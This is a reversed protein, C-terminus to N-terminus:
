LAWIEKCTKYGQRGPHSMILEFLAIESERRPLQERAQEVAQRHDRSAGFVLERTSFCPSQSLVYLAEWRAPRARARNGLARNLAERAEDFSDFIPANTSETAHEMADAILYVAAAADERGAVKYFEALAEFGIDVILIGFLGELLVTGEDAMLLGVSIVERIAAEAEELRGDAMLLAALAVHAYSADKIGSYKPLPLAWVSYDDPFPLVYTAALIDAESARAAISYEAFAPHSSVEGLYARQEDSFGEAAARFLRSPDKVLLYHEDARGADGEATMWKREISHEPEQMVPDHREDGAMYVTYLARGAETATIGPDAELRYARAEEVVALRQMTNLRHAVVSAYEEQKGIMKAQAFLGLGAVVILPLVSIRLWRPIRKLGHLPNTASHSM